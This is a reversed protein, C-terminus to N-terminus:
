YIEEITFAANGAGGFLRSAGVGNVYVTADGGVRVTFTLAGTTGSTVVHDIVLPVRYSAAPVTGATAAIASSSASNFLAAAPNMAGTGSVFATFRLRLKSAASKPTISLSFVQDGETDTPVTDDQPIATSCTILAGTNTSVMQVLGPAAWEFATTAGNVRPTYLATPAALLNTPAVGAAAINGSTITGTLINSGALAFGNTLSSVDISGPAIKDGTVASATINFSAIANTAINTSQITYLAIHGNTIVSPMIKEATVSNGGLKGATVNGDVLKATTVSNDALISTTVSGATLTANATINTWYGNTGDWVKPVPPTYSSDLWIYRALKPEAAVAAATNTVAFIIMGRNTGVYSNDVLQNLKAGTVSTAGTFDFGKVIDSDVATLLGLTTVYTLAFVALLKKKM